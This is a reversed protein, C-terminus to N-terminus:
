KIATNESAYLLTDTFVIGFTLWDFQEMGSLNSSISNLVFLHHNHAFAAQKQIMKFHLLKTPLHEKIIM